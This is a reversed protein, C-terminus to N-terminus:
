SLAERSGTQESLMICKTNSTSTWLPSQSIVILSVYTVHIPTHREPCLSRRLKAVPQDLANLMFRAILHIRHISGKLM